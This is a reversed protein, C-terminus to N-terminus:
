LASACRKARQDALLAPLSPSVRLFPQCLSKWRVEVNGVTDYLGFPNPEFQAVTLNPCANPCTAGTARAKTSDFKDGFWFNTSTGARAAREWELETPLRYVVGNAAPHSSLWECYRTANEHSVFVVAEDDGVSYGGEFGRLLAHSPDFAEYQANTVETVGIWFPPLTVNTRSPREDFDGFPRGPIAVGGGLPTQLSGIMTSGAPIAALPPLNLSQRPAPHPQQHLPVGLAMAGLVLGVAGPSISVSM